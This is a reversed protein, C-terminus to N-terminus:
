GAGGGVYKMVPLEVVSCKCGLEKEKERMVIFAETFSDFTEPAVYQPRGMAEDFTTPRKAIKYVHWDTSAHSMLM